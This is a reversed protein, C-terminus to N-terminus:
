GQHLGRKSKKSSIVDSNLDHVHPNKDPVFHQKSLLVAAQWDRLLWLLFFENGIVLPCCHLFPIKCQLSHIVEELNGETQNLLGQCFFAITIFNELFLIRWSLGYPQEAKSSPISFFDKPDRVRCIGSLVRGFVLKPWVPDSALLDERCAPSHVQCQSIDLNSHIM